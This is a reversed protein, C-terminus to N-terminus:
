AQHLSWGLPTDEGLRLEQAHYEPLALRQSITICTMQQKAAAKYLQVEVDQSVASTAEDLIAFDPRAFFLRAMGIRQQEGLSLTDEWKLVADLGGKERSGLYGLSVIELCELMRAETHADRPQIRSPYSIQDALSGQCSYVRQPVLAVKAHEPMSLTGGRAPWVGSLVRAISSKGCGNMGTIMLPKSADIQVSLAKALCEGAPTVIDISDMMIIQQEQQQEVGSVAESQPTTRPSTGSDDQLALTELKECAWMLQGIRSTVGSLQAFKESFEIIVSFAEIITRV